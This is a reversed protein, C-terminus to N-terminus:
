VSGPVGLPGLFVNEERVLATHLPGSGIKGPESGVVKRLPTRAGAVVPEECMVGQAKGDM